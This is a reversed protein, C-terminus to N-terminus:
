APNVTFGYITIVQGVAGGPDALNQANWGGALSYEVGFPASGTRDAMLTAGPIQSAYFTQGCSSGYVGVGDGASRVAIPVPDNSAFQAAVWSSTSVPDDTDFTGADWVSYTIGNGGNPITHTVQTGASIIWATSVDRAVTGVSSNGIATFDVGMGQVSGGSSHRTVILLDGLGAAAPEQWTTGTGPDEGFALLVPTVVPATPAANKVDSWNGDGVANVARIEIAYSQGDTLSSITRAGTGTGTLLTEGAGDLRYELATIASDGDYPLSTITLTLDGATVPNVLTWDGLVFASPVSTMPPSVAEEVAMFGIRKRM